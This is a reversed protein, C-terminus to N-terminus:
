QRTMLVEVLDAALSASAASVTAANGLLEEARGAMKAGPADPGNAFLQQLYAIAENTVSGALQDQQDKLADLADLLATRIAIPFDADGPLKM